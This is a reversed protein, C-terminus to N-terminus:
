VKYWLEHLEGSIDGKIKSEDPNEPFWNEGKKRNFEKDDPHPAPAVIFAPLTSSEGDLEALISFAVGNCRESASKNPSNAWVDAIEKMKKLFLNRVEETTYERPEKKKVM